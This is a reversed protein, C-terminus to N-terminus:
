FGPTRPGIQLSWLVSWQGSTSVDKSCTVYNGVPLLVLLISLSLQRLHILAHDNVASYMQSRIRNYERGTGLPM